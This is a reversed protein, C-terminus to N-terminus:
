SRCILRVATVTEADLEDMTAYVLVSASAALIRSRPPLSTRLLIEGNEDIAVVVRRSNEYPARYEEIWVRSLRDIYVGGHAPSVPPVAAVAHLRRVAPERGREVQQVRHQIWHDLDSRTLNRPTFPTRFSALEVGDTRFRRIRGSGDAVIIYKANSSVTPIRTFPADVVSFERSTNVIRTRDPVTALLRSGGPTHLRIQITDPWLEPGNRGRATAAPNASTVSIDDRLLGVSGPQAELARIFGRDLTFLSLRRASPDAVVVTDAKSFIRRINRFEGPGQGRRGFVAMRRGSVAYFALHQAQDDAVAFVTDNVFAAGVLDGIETGRATGVVARPQDSFSCRSAQQATAQDAVVPLIVAAILRQYRIM